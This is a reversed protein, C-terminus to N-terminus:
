VGEASGMKKIISEICMKTIEDKLIPPEIKKENDMSGHDFGSGTPEKNYMQELEM